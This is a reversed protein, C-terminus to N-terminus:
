ENKYKRMKDLQDTLEEQYYKRGCTVNVSVTAAILALSFAVRYLKNYLKRMQRVEARKRYYYCMREEGSGFQFFRYSLPFFHFLLANM